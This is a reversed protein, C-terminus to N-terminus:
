RAPLTIAGTTRLVITEGAKLTAPEARQAAAAATGGAAGIAAGRAAGNRGGFIAGLIAGAAAGGGIRTTNQQAQGRGTRTIAGTQMEFENGDILVAHFQVTLAEAGSMRGSNEVAKVSGILRDGNQLLVKGNESVTGTVTATMRDGPQAENSSVGSNATAWFRTGAAITGTAPKQETTDVQQPPRVDTAAPTPAAASITQEGAPAPRSAAPREDVPPAPRPAAADLRAQRAQESALRQEADVRRGYERELADLLKGVYGEVGASGGAQQATQVGGATQGPTTEDLAAAANGPRASEDPPTAGAAWTPVGLNGVGNTMTAFCAGAASSLISLVVAVLLLKIM